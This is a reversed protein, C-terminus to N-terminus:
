VGLMASVISHHDEFTRNRLSLFQSIPMWWAERADDGGSVKPLKGIDNLEFHTTHSIIRGRTSREPNDFVERNKISGYLVPEPVKLKTEERLERIVNELISENPNLFGGPMAIQGVGPMKGRAVVLIHGAQTVLADGAVHNPPYPSNEWSQKYEQIYKFEEVMNSKGIATWVLSFHKNDLFYEERNPVNGTVYLYTRIMTANIDTIPKVDISQWQPFKKLYYTTHDKDFGIIGIQPNVPRDTWGGAHKQAINFVAAQIETLWRAENYTYDPQYHFSIRDDSGLCHKIIELRKKTPIPNRIDISKNHSGIVIILHNAIALAEQVVHYHGMHFPQFRGIFVAYDLKKM